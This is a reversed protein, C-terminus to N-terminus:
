DRSQRPIAMPLDVPEVTGDAAVRAHIVKGTATNRVRIADDIRGAELAEGGTTVEVPGSRAVIRVHDGRRVLVPSVLMAQQIVQGPRLSRRSAMGIVATAQSLADPITALDRRELALDATGISRGAPLATAAVLVEASIEARAVFEVRSGTEPCSAAFRLRAPYRTDVPAVQLPRTCAPLPRSAAALTVNIEPAQLGSRAAQELLQQRVAQAVQGAASEAAASLATGALLGLIVLKFCSPM